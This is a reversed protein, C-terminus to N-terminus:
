RCFTLYCTIIAAVHQGVAGPPLGALSALACMTFGNIDRCAPQPSTSM